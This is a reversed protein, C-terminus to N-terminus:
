DIESQKQAHSALPVLKEDAGKTFIFVKKDLERKVVVSMM